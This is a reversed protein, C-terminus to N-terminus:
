QSQKESRGRNTAAIWDVLDDLRHAWYITLGRSQANELNHLKYVGSLVAVPVVQTQGFDKIWEEAKAAADNNLRKVSNISSNSVKCEIPMVREDWLRVVLDAELQDADWVTRERFGRHSSRM